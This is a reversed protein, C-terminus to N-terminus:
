FKKTVINEHLGPKVGHKQNSNNSCHKKLIYHITFKLRSISIQLSLLLVRSLRLQRLQDWIRCFCFITQNDRPEYPSEDAQSLSAVLLQLVRKQHHFRIFSIFWWYWSFILYQTWEDKGEDFLIMASLFPLCGFKEIWGLCCLKRFLDQKNWKMSVRWPRFNNNLEMPTRESKICKCTHNLSNSHSM